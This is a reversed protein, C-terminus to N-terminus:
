SFNLTTNLLFLWPQSLPYWEVNNTPTLFSIQSDRLCDTFVMKENTIISTSQPVTLQSNCKPPVLSIDLHSKSSGIDIM